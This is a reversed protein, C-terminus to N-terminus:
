PQSVLSGKAFVNLGPRLIRVKMMSRPKESASRKFTVRLRGRLEALVSDLLNTGISTVRGPLLIRGGSLSALDDLYTRGVAYEAKVLRDNSDNKDFTDLYVVFVPIDLLEAAILSTDYQWKRSITDIGDTVIILASPPTRTKRFTSTFIEGVANFLCTGHGGSVKHVQKELLDRDTTFEGMVKLEDTLTAILASDSPQLRHIVDSAITKVLEHQKDTSPGMPSMDLLLVINVPENAKTVATIQQSEDDVFVQVEDKAIDLILSGSRYAAVSITVETSANTPPFLKKADKKDSAYGKPAQRPSYIASESYTQTGQAFAASAASFPLALAIVSFLGLQPFRTVGM